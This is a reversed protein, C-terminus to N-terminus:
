GVNATRVPLLQLLWPAGDGGKTSTFAGTIATVNIPLGGENVVGIMFEVEADLILTERNSSTPFLDTPRSCLLAACRLASSLLALCSSLPPCARGSSHEERASCLLASCSLLFSFSASRGM